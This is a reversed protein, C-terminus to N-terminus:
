AAARYYHNLMGGLRSKRQVPGAGRGPRGEIMRGELGQHPRERHYHSMYESIVRLLHKESLPIVNSLCEEKISRVFRQPM